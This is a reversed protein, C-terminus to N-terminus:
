KIDWEGVLYGIGLPNEYSLQHFTHRTHAIAGLTILIAQIGGEGAEECFEPNLAKIKATENEQLLKILTSDYKIGYPSFGAPAEETLRNSLHVSAMIAVSEESEELVTSLQKGFKFQADWDTATFTLLIIKPKKDLNKTLRLLPILSGYDLSSERIIDVPAHKKRFYRLLKRSLETNNKFIYDYDDGGFDVFNGRFSSEFNITFKDYRMPGRSSIVIITDPSVKRLNSALTELSKSTKQLLNKESSKIEPALVLPHPCITAFNIMIFLTYFM